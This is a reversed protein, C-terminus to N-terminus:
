NMFSRLERAQIFVGLTYAHIQINKEKKLDFDKLSVADDLVLYKNNNKGIFHKKLSKNILIYTINKLLNLRKFLRFILSTLGSTKHHVELLNKYGISSLIM